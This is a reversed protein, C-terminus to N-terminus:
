PAQAPDRLAFVLARLWRHAADKERSRPWLAIFRPELLTVPPAFLQLDLMQAARRAVSAPLTCLLDSEAVALAASAFSQVRLAIWRSRGLAALAADVVGLSKSELSVLVHGASTFRDLTLPRRSPGRQKRAIVVFPDSGFARVCLGAHTPRQTAGVLALDVRGEVLPEITSPGFREVDFSVRPARERARALLTPLKTFEFYDYTAIRFTRETRAPDFPEEGRLTRRMHALLAPLEEALAAARPTLVFSRGSQVLLEDGLQARLNSLSHSMASQTVGARQAARTVNRTELLLALAPLLNLNLSNTDVGNM